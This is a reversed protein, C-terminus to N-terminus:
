RSHFRKTPQLFGFKRRVPSWLSPQIALLEVDWRRHGYDVYRKCCSRNLVIDWLLRVQKLQQNVKLESVSPVNIIGFVFCIDVLEFAWEVVSLCSKCLNALLISVCKGVWVFSFSIWFCVHSTFMFGHPLFRVCFVCLNWNCNHLILHSRTQLCNSTDLFFSQSGRNM